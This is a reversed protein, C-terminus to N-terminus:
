PKPVRKALQWGIRELLTLPRHQLQLSETARWTLVFRGDAYRVWRKGIPILADELKWKPDIKPKVLGRELLAQESADNAVCGCDFLTEGLEPTRTAHGYMCRLESM